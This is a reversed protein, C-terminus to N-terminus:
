RLLPTAVSGDIKLQATAAPTQATTAHSLLLLASTILHLLVARRMRNSM